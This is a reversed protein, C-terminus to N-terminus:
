TAATAANESHAVLITEFDQGARRTFLCTGVKEPNTAFVHKAVRQYANVAVSDPHGYSNDVGASILVTNPSVSLLTKANVGNRSGHHPAAMVDSALYKAFYKNINDWRETETDGTILYSFGTADIGVLKLVISSNNSNDMDDMHPSFLEFTFNDALDSLHRSDESNVHVSHRVLPHKTKERHKVEKAITAFVDTAADTDKYYKPYMVWDPEYRTLISEVGTPCAHDRDLGTLILGKVARQGIFADLTAQIEEPTVDDEVDPMHADVIIVENGARVAALNGQGVYLTLIQMYTESKDTKPTKVFQEFLIRNCLREASILAARASSFDQKSLRDAVDKLPNPANRLILSYMPSSSASDEVLVVEVKSGDLLEIPGRWYFGLKPSTFPRVDRYFEALIDRDYVREAVPRIIGPASHSVQHYAVEGQRSLHTQRPTEVSATLPWILPSDVIRIQRPAIEYFREDGRRFMFHKFSYRELPNKSKRKGVILLAYFFNTNHNHHNVTRTYTAIDGGSLTQLGNVHHTHWTGLHEISPHKEEIARFAREQYEGDQFLMVPSRRAKPGPEIIGLVEVTLKGGHERYQGVIRGGTEDHDYLDCEEFIMSLAAKPLIIEVNSAHNLTM